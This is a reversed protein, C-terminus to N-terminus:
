WWWCGHKWSMDCSRTVIFGAAIIFFGFVMGLVLNWWWDVVLSLVFFYKGDSWRKRRRACWCRCLFCRRHFVLLGSNVRYDSVPDNGNNPWAGHRNIHRARVARQCGHAVPCVRKTTVSPGSDDCMKFDNLLVNSTSPSYWVTNIQDNYNTNEIQRICLYM